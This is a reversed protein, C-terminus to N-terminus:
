TGPPRQPGGEEPGSVRLARQVIPIQIGEQAFRANITAHLQSRTSLGLDISTFFLVQFEIGFEGFSEFWVRAPPDELVNPHAKVIEDLIALVREIDTGYSVRVPIMRRMVRDNRTWNTLNETVFKKNPIIITQRDWNTVVTARITIKDVTGSTSGVTVIDGVLALFATAYLSLRPRFFWALMILLLISGSLGVFPRSSRRVAIAAIMLGVVFVAAYGTAWVLRQGLLRQDVRVARLLANTM